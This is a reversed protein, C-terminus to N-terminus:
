FESDFSYNNENYRNSESRNSESRYPEEEEENYMHITQEDDNDENEENEVDLNIQRRCMPCTSHTDFWRILSYPNFNHKCSNIQMVSDILDFPVQSIPCIDNLPNNITCYPIIKTQQQIVDYSLTHGQRSRSLERDIIQTYYILSDNLRPTDLLNLMLRSATSTLSPAPPLPTPEVPLIPSLSNLERQQQQEQQEQEQQRQERQQRQRVPSISHSLPSPSQHPSQPPSFTPVELFNRPITTATSAGTDATAAASTAPVRRPAGIQVPLRYRVFTSAFPPASTPSSVGAAGGAARAAGAFTQRPVPDERSQPQLQPQLQPQSLGGVRRRPLTFLPEREREEVAPTDLRSMLRVPTPIQFPSSSPNSHFRLSPRVPTDPMQTERQVIPTEIVSSPEEVQEPARARAARTSASASNTNILNLLVRNNITRTLGNEFTMYGNLIDRTANIYSNVLTLYAEETSNSRAPHADNNDMKFYFTRRNEIQIYLYTVKNYFYNNLVIKYMNNNM